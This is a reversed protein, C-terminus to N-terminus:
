KTSALAQRLEGVNWGTTRPSLKKPKPIRGSKVGRWITAPSCAYLVELVPLRVFASSPLVDFNKLSDSQKM